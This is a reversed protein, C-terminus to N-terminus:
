PQRLTFIVIIRLEVVFQFRVKFVPKCVHFGFLSLTKSARGSKGVLVRDIEHEVAEHM